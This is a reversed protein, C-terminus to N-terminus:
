DIIENYRSETIYQPSYTESYRKLVNTFAKLHHYSGRRINEYVATIDNNDIENDIANDLDYIDLDEIEAGVKLADVLSSKGKTILQNYLKEYDPNNFKGTENQETYDIDYKKIMELVVSHHRSEAKSINYFVPLKYIEYLKVYVDHALKEEDAMKLLSKKEASSLNEKPTTAQYCNVSQAQTM